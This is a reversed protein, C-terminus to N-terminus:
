HAACYLNVDCVALWACNVEAHGGCARLRMTIQDVSDSKCCEGAPQAAGGDDGNNEGGALSNGRRNGQIHPGFM